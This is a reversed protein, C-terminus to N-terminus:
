ATRGFGDPARVLGDVVKYHHRIAIENDQLILHKKAGSALVSQTNELTALDETLGSKQISRNYELAFRQGANQPPPNYMRVEYVTRDVAVPWFNYTFYVGIGFILMFFNPFFVDIDFGWNTQRTPNLGPPLDGQSVVRKRYSHGHRVVLEDVPNLRTHPNGYISITQHLPFLIIALPHALPNGQGAASDPLSRQHVFPVHYSEQFANVAVKWNCRAEARYAFCATKQAFPWGKLREGLDGLYAALSQQPQPDLNIFIFGEWLAAAVPTLGLEHKRLDHFQDEDPVHLLQGDLGYSWGHFTCAFRECQGRDQWVVKNGRHACMNHFARIAGDGGRVVLVSSQAAAIEKVFHDGAHPIEEERGVNLWVRRFINACELAFYAPSIYPEIPIPDTGLEPYAAAWRKRGAAADM